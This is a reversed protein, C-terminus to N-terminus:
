KNKKIKETPVDSPTGRDTDKIGRTIDDLAQDLVRQSEENPSGSGTGDSDTSQAREHPLKIKKNM